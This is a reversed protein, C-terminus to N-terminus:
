PTTCRSAAERTWCSRRPPTRSRLARASGDSSGVSPSSDKVAGNLAFQGPATRVFSSRPGHRKIDVALVAGVTDWPMKGRTTWGSELMRKAIERYHLPKGATELVRRAHDIITM